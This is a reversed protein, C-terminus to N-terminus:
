ENQEQAKIMEVTHCECRMHEGPMLCGATGCDLVLEFQDDEDFEDEELDDDLDCECVPWDCIPCTM